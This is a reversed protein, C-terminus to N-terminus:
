SGPQISEPSPPPELVGQALLEQLAGRVDRQSIQLEQSVERCIDAVTHESDCYTLVAEAAENLTVLKGTSEEFLMCGEPIPEFLFGEKLVPVYSDFNEPVPASGIALM